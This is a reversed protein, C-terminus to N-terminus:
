ARTPSQLSCWEVCIRIRASRMNYTRGPEVRAQVGIFPVHLSPPGAAYGRDGFACWRGRCKDNIRGQFLRWMEVIIGDPNVIGQYM